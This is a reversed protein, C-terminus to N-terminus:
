PRFGLRDKSSTEIFTRALSFSTEVSKTTDEDILYGGAHNDAGHVRAMSEFLLSMKIFFDDLTRDKHHSM